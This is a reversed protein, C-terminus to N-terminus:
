ASAFTDKTYEKRDTLIYPRLLYTSYSRTSKKVEAAAAMIVVRSDGGDRVAQEQGEGDWDAAWDCMDKNYAVM